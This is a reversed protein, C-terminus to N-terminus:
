IKEQREKSRSVSKSSQRQSFSWARSRVESWVSIQRRLRRETRVTEQSKSSSKSGGDEELVLDLHEVLLASYMRDVANGTLRAADGFRLVFHELAATIFPVQLVQRITPRNAPNKELMWYMLAELEVSLGNRDVRDMPSFVINHVVEDVDAGNFPKALTVMEFLVVGAAWVDAKESYGRRKGNLIEPAMYYPTGLSTTSVNADVDKGFSKAFGFDALKAIWKKSLLINAPKLDRHLINNRHLYELGLCMQVFIFLLQEESMPRSPRQGPVGTRSKLAERLDNGDVYETILYNNQDDTFEDIYAVINPHACTAVLRTEGFEGGGSRTARAQGTSRPEIKAVFVNERSYTGKGEVVIHPKTSALCSVPPARLLGTCTETIAATSLQQRRTNNNNTAAAAESVPHSSLSSPLAAKNATVSRGSVSDNSIRTNTTKEDHHHPHDQQNKDDNILNHNNNNNRQTETENM